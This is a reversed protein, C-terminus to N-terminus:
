HLAPTVYEEIKFCPKQHGSTLYPGWSFPTHFCSQSCCLPPFRSLSFLIISPLPVSSPVLFGIHFSWLVYILTQVYTTMNALALSVWLVTHPSPTHPVSSSICCLVNFTIVLSWWEKAQTASFFYYQTRGMYCDIIITGMLDSCILWTCQVVATM